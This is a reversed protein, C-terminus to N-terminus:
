MTTLDRKRIWRVAFTEHLLPHSLPLPQVSANVRVLAQKEPVCLGNETPFYSHELVNYFFLPSLYIPM